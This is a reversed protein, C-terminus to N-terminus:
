PANWPYRRAILKSLAERRADATLKQARLWIVDALVDFTRTPCPTRDPIVWDILDAVTECDLRDALDWAASYSGKAARETLDVYSEHRQDLKRDAM